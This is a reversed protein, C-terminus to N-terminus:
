SSKRTFFAQHGIAPGLEASFLRPRGMRGRAKCERCPSDAPISILRAISEPGSAYGRRRPHPRGEQSPVLRQSPSRPAPCRRLHSIIRPPPLRRASRAAHNSRWSRHCPRRTPSRTVEYLRHLAGRFPSTSFLGSSACGCFLLIMSWASAHGPGLEHASLVRGEVRAAGKSLAM